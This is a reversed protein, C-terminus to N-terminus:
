IIHVVEVEKGLEKDIDQWKATLMIITIGRTEPNRKLHECVEFGDLGSNPM